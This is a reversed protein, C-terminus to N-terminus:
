GSAASVRRRWTAMALAPLLGAVAVPWFARGASDVGAASVADIVWGLLPAIAMTALAQAQSELSLLTAGISPDSHSDFRSILIPRWLNQMVALVVYLGIVLGLVDFWLLPLLAAYLAAMVLWIRHSAREEGGLRDMVRHAQRSAVSALVHLVFYVAGVLLASRQREPMAVALPVALAAAALLPQLYDKVAGYVGEFSMSEVLLRRLAPRRVSDKGVRWLHRAVEGLSADARRNGDLSRPYTALNVLGLVYPVVAVLFVVRYSDTAFVLAAAILVSVASGIKSWSRTFGYVRTREGERGQERLWDLIMAKHTGGRFADGGGFLATGVLIQWLETGLALVLFSAIYISFSAIMCRRRGYVDALAGTPVEMLNSVVQQVGMAVGIQFFSLGRDLLSLVLFPEFYRQNKLFGYLSFRFLM